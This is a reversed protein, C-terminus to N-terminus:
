GEDEGYGPLVVGELKYAMEAANTPFIELYRTGMMSKHLKIAEAM